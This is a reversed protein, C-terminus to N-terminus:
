LTADILQSWGELRVMMARMLKRYQGVLIVNIIPQHDFFWDAVPWLYAWWYHRALYLPTGDLFYRYFNPSPIKM